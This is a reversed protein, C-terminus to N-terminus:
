FNIKFTASFSGGQQNPRQLITIPRVNPRQQQQLRPDINHHHFGPPTGNPRSAFQIRPIVQPMSPMGYGMGHRPPTGLVCCLSLIFTTLGNALKLVWFHQM